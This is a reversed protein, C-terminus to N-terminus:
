ASIEIVAVPAMKQAQVAMDGIKSKLNEIEKSIQDHRSFYCVEKKAEDSLNKHSATLRYLDSQRMALTKIQKSRKTQPM